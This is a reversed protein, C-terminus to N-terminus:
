PSRSCFCAPSTSIGDRRSPRPATMTDTLHQIKVFLAMGAAVMLVFMMITGMSFRIRRILRM